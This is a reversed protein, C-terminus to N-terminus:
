TKQKSYNKRDKLYIFVYLNEEYYDKLYIIIISTVFLIFERGSFISGEIADYLIVTSREGLSYMGM